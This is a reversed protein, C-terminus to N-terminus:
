SVSTIQKMNKKELNTGLSKMFLQFLHNYDSEHALRWYCPLEEAHKKLFADFLNSSPIPYLSFQFGCAEGMAEISEITFNTDGKLIKRIRSLEVGSKAALDKTQDSTLNSLIGNPLVLIPKKMDKLNKKNKKM